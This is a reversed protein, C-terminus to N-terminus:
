ISVNAREQLVVKGLIGVGIGFSLLLVGSLNGDGSLCVILQLAKDTTFNPSRWLKGIDVLPLVVACILCSDAVRGVAVLAPRAVHRCDDGRHSPQNLLDM